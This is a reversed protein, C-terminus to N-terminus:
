GPQVQEIKLTGDGINYLWFEHNIIAGQPALGFDFSDSVIFLQPTGTTFFPGSDLIDDSCSFMFLGILILLLSFLHKFKMIKYM